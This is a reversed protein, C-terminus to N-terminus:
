PLGCLLGVGNCYNLRTLIRCHILNQTLSLCYYLPATPNKQPSVSMGQINCTISHSPFHQTIVEIDQVTSWPSLLSSYFTLETCQLIRSSRDFCILVSKTPNLKLRTSLGGYCSTMLAPAFDRQLM